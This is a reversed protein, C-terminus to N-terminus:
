SKAESWNPGMGVKAALPVNFPLGRVSLVSEMAAKMKLKNREADEFPTELLVEDHVQLLLTGVLRCDLMAMKAIDSSGGQIKKSITDRKWSQHEWESKVPRYKQEKKSWAIYPCPIRRGSILEVYGQKRCRKAEQEMWEKTVWMKQWYKELHRLCIAESLGTQSAMKSAWGGNVALFNCTKGIHRELGIQKATEAHPDNGSHFAKLFIPDQSHHALVRLDLQSYDGCLLTHNPSAVFLGRMVNGTETRTPINQLNPRRSSLRSTNTVAQGFDTHVRPLTSLELLPQTYTSRLKTLERYRFLLEILPINQFQKLYEENTAELKKGIAISLGKKMQVPSNFNIEQGLAQRLRAEVPAMEAILQRDFQKLGDVDLMVGTEEMDFLTQTLPAELDFYVKKTREDMKDLFEHLLKHCVLVDMCCYPAVEEKPLMDLTIETTREKVVAVPHKKGKMVTYHEVRTTMEDYTPWRYGREEGLVKLGYRKRTADLTYSMVMTDAFLASATVPVNNRRLFHLDSKGNHAVFKRSRIIGKVRDLDTIYYIATTGKAYDMVGMGVFKDTGKVTELDIVIKDSFTPLTPPDIEVTCGHLHPGWSMSAM